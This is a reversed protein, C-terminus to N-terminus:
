SGFVPIPLGVATLGKNSCTLNIASQQKLNKSGITKSRQGAGVIEWGDLGSQKRSNGVIERSNGVTERSNGVTERSNGSQKGVTERSNGVTESQKGIKRSYGSPNGVREGYHESQTRINGSNRGCKGTNKPSLQLIIM